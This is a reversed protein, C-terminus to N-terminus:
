IKWIPPDNWTAGPLLKESFWMWIWSTWGYEDDDNLKDCLIRCKDNPSRMLKAFVCGNSPISTLELSLLYIALNFVRENEHRGRDRKRASFSSEANREKNWYYKISFYVVSSSFTISLCNLLKHITTNVVENPTQVLSSQYLSTWRLM